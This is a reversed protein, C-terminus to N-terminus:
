RPNRERWAQVISRLRSMDKREDDLRALAERRYENSGEIREETRMRDECSACFSPDVIQIEQGCFQCFTQVLPADISPLASMPM